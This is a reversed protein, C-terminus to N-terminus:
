HPRLMQADSAFFSGFQVKLSHGKSHIFTPSIKHDVSSHMKYSTNLRLLGQRCAKPPTEPRSEVAAAGPLRPSSM